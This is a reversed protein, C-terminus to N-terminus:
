VDGSTLQCRQCSHCHTSLVVRYYLKDTIM